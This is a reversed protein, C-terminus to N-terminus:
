EYMDEPLEDIITLTPEIGRLLSKPKPDPTPLAVAKEVAIDMCRVCYNSRFGRIPRFETLGHKDCTRKVSGGPNLAPTAFLSKM